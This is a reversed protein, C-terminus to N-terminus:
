PEDRYWTCTLAANDMGIVLSRAALGGSVGLLTKKERYVNLALITRSDKSSCQQIYYPKSLTNDDFINTRSLKCVCHIYNTGGM